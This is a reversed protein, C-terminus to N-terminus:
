EKIYIDPDEVDIFLPIIETHSGGIYIKIKDEYNSIKRTPNFYVTCNQANKPHIVGKKPKIIM